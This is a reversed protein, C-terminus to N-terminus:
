RRASAAAADTLIAAVREPDSDYGVTSPAGMVENYDQTFFFDDLYDDLISRRPNLFGPTAISRFFRVFARQTNTLQRFSVSRDFLCRLYENVHRNLTKLM